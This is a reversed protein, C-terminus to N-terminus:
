EVVTFIEGRWSRILQRFQPYLKHWEPNTMIKKIGTELEV